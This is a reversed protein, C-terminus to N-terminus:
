IMNLKELIRTYLESDAEQLEALIAECCNLKHDQEFIATKMNEVLEKLDM